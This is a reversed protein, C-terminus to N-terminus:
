QCENPSERKIRVAILADGSKRGKVEVCLETELDGKNFNSGRFVTSQNVIFTKGRVVLNPDDFSTIRGKVEVESSSGDGSDGNDDSSDDGSSSDDNEAGDESDDYGDDDSDADCRNSGIAGEVIDNVGDGDSDTGRKLARKLSKRENVSLRKMQKALDTQDKQIKLALRKAAAARPSAAAPHILCSLAFIIALLYKM